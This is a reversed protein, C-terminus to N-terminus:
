VGYGVYEGSVTYAPCDWRRANPDPSYRQEESTKKIWHIWGAQTSIEKKHAREQQQWQELLNSPHKVIRKIIKKAM